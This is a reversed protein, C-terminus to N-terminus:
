VRTTTLNELINLWRSDIFRDILQQYNTFPFRPNLYFGQLPDLM